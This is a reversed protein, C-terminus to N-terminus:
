RGGHAGCRGEGAVAFVAPAANGVAQGNPSATDKEQGCATTLALLAAATVALSANRWTDM